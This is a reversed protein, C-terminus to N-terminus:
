QLLVVPDLFFERRVNTLIFLSGLPLVGWAMSLAGSLPKQKHGIGLARLM